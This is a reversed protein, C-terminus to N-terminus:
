KDNSHTRGFAVAAALGTAAGIGLGIAKGVGPLDLGQLLNESMEEPRDPDLIRTEGLAMEAESLPPPDFPVLSRGHERRLREIARLLSMGEAELADDLESRTVGLHEAVLRNRVDRIMQRITEENSQSPLAEIALDCETDLGMSRNNLNSSGVRLLRDDIAVVKAHVYIDTGNETVPTYIQFRGYRDCNRIHKLLVARSTGMVEEELWGYATKPNIVVIEPGDEEQLRERLAAAIRHSAFYQTEIYITKQAARIAALYLAEIERVEPQARGYAPETRAIAVDVDTLDPSLHDPWCPECLPAPPIKEGTARKWRERALDGLARAVEGMLCITADHWPHYPEGTPDKRCPDEDAHAPTDWRYVTMDIGGCFAVTDDVVVIKQHHCAGTPHEHDLRFQLRRGAIWDLLKLPLTARFPFKLFSLDWRLVFVRLDPRNEVVYTLFDGLEDPVDPMPDTRELGIRLDFDWGILFVSHKAKLISAKAAAFYAAADAIVAVRDAKAIRWCSEGERLIARDASGQSIDDGAPSM